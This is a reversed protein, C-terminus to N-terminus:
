RASIIQLLFGGAILATSFSVSKKYRSDLGKAVNPHGNILQFPNLCLTSVTLCIAGILGLILGALNLCM